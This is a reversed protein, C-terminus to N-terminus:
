AAQWWEDVHVVQGMLEERSPEREFLPAHTLEVARACVLLVIFSVASGVLSWAAGTVLALVAFAVAAALSLWLVKSRPAHAFGNILTNIIRVSAWILIVLAVISFLIFLGILSGALEDDWSGSSRM